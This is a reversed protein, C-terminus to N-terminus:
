SSFTRTYGLAVRLFAFVFLLCVQHVAWSSVTLADTLGPGRSWLCGPPIHFVAPLILRPVLRHRSRSKLLTRLAIPSTALFGSSFALYMDSYKEWTKLGVISSEPFSISSFIFCFVHVICHRSGVLPSSFPAMERSRSVAAPGDPSGAHTHFVNPFHSTVNEMTKVMRWPHQFVFVVGACHLFVCM